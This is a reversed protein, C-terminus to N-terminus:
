KRNGKGNKLKLLKINIKSIKEIVDWIEQYKQCAIKALQKEKDSIYIHYTRKGKFYSIRFYPGHRYRKNKHCKCEKRACRQYWIQFTGRILDSFVPLVDKLLGKKREKLEKYKIQINKM